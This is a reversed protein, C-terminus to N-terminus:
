VLFNKLGLLIAFGVFFLVSFGLHIQVNRGAAPKLEDPTHHSKLVLSATKPLLLIYPALSFLLLWGQEIYVLSLIVVNIVLALQVLLYLVATFKTGARVAVGHKGTEKDAPRDILQGILLISSTSLGTIPMTALVAPEYGVNQSVTAVLIAMPGFAFWVSIEGWGHSALKFPAATYYKSFFASFLYLGWLTPWLEPKVVMMLALTCAFAVVLSWRAIAFMKSELHPFNVLIGSGGSFENRHVNVRDTGQLTDYIDNYVNTAAHLAIGMILVLIFGILNFQGSLLVALLTGSLIPSLISSLFPARIMQAFGPEPAKM